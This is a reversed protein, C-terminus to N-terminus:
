QPPLRRWWRLLADVVKPLLAEVVQPIDERRARLVAFVAFVLWVIALQVAVQMPCVRGATGPPVAETVTAGPLAGKNNSSGRPDPFICTTNSTIVSLLHKPARQM